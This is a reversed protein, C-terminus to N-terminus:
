DWYGERKHADCLRQEYNRDITTADDYAPSNMVQERTLKIRVIRAAWDIRDIWHRAVLVLKGGLWWNRTDIVLYRIAWSAEDFIFDKVHGMSEEAAQIDYGTVTESSQLHIDEARFEQERAANEVETETTSPVHTRWVPYAAAAWLGGGEWYEPYEYHRLHEREHQRTVPQHTDIDPSSRVQQQTLAVSISRDGSWPTMVAYPSLLVKRGSLWTGTNVVLYRIAWSKDDFLASSVTGIPGDTAGVTASTLATLSRFVPPRNKELAAGSQALKAELQLEEAQADDYAEVSSERYGSVRWTRTDSESKAIRAKIASIEEQNTM